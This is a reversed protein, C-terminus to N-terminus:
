KAGESETRRVETRMWGRVLSAPTVDGGLEVLAEQRDRLLALFVRAADGELTIHVREPPPSKAPTEPLMPGPCVMQEAAMEVPTANKPADNPDPPPPHLPDPWTPEDAPAAEYNGDLSAVNNWSYQGSRMWLVVRRPNNPNLAWVKARREFNSKHRGRIVSGIPFPTNM